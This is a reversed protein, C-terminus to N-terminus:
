PLEVGEVLHWCTSLWGRSLRRQCLGFLNICPMLETLREQEMTEMDERHEWADCAEGPEGVIDFVHQCRLHTRWSCWCGADGSTWPTLREYYYLRGADIRLRCLDCTHAKRARTTKVTRPKTM